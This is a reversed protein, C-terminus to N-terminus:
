SCFSFQKHKSTYWCGEMDIILFNSHLFLSDTSIDFACATLIQAKVNALIFATCRNVTNVSAANFLRRIDMTIIPLRCLSGTPTISHLTRIRTKDSLSRRKYDTSESCYVSVRAQLKRSLSVRISTGGQSKHITLLSAGVPFIASMSMTMISAATHTAMTEISRHTM